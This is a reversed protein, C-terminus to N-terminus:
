FRYNPAISLLSMKIRENELNKQLQEIASQKVLKSYNAQAIPKKHRVIVQEEPESDEDDYEEVEVPRAKPRKVPAKKSKSNALEQKKLEIQEKIDELERKQRDLEVNSLEKKKEKLTKTIDNKAQKALIAKQMNKVRIARKEEDSLLPKGTKKSLKVPEDQIDKIDDEVPELEDDYVEHVEQVKKRAM